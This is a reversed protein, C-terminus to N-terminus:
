RKRTDEDNERRHLEEAIHPSDTGRQKNKTLKELERNIVAENHTDLTNRVAKIMDGFGSTFREKDESM